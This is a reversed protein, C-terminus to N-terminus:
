LGVEVRVRRVVIMEVELIRALHDIDRLPLDLQLLQGCRRFAVLDSVDVHHDPQHGPAVALSAAALLDQCKGNLSSLAKGFTAAGSSRLPIFMKGVRKCISKARLCAAHSVCDIPCLAADLRAIIGAHRRDLLKQLAAAIKSSTGAAKVFLAHVDYGMVHPASRVRMSARSGCCIGM